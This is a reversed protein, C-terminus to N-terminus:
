GGVFDRPTFNLDLVKWEGYRDAPLMQYPECAHLAAIASHLLAPGNESPHKVGIPFPEAALRGEPTMFVRLKIEIEDSPAVAAPLKSCTKLHSRFEAIRSSAIDATTSAPADFNKDTDGPLRSASSAPPLGLLVHYKISLDPEPPTYAPSPSTAAPQPRTAQPVANAQQPSSRPKAPAAQQPPVAAPPAAPPPSPPPASQSALNFADIPVPKPITLPEEKRPPPKLEDPSVLDVTVAEATVSSFPHVESFFIVLALVSLHAIASATFGTGIIQRPEM